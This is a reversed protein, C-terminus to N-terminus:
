RRTKFVFESGDPSIHMLMTREAGAAIGVYGLLYSVEKLPHEGDGMGLRLHHRRILVLIPDNVLWEEFRIKKGGNIVFVQEDIDVFYSNTNWVLSAVIIERKNQSAEEFSTKQLVRHGKTAVVIEPTTAEYLSLTPKGRADILM